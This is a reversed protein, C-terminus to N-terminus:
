FCKYYTRIVTVRRRISASKRYKGSEDHVVALLEFVDAILFHRPGHMDRVMRLAAKYNDAAGPFDQKALCSRAADLRPAINLGSM